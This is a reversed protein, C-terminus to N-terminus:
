ARGRRKMCAIHADVQGITWIVARRRGSFNEIPGGNAFFCTCKVKDKSKVCNPHVDEANANSTFLAFTTAVLVLKIANALLITGWSYDNIARSFPSHAVPITFAAVQCPSWCDREISALNTLRGAASRDRM